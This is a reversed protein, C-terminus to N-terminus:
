IRGDAGFRSHGRGCHRRKLNEGRIICLRSIYRAFSKLRVPATAVPRGCFSPSIRGMAGFPIVPEDFPM